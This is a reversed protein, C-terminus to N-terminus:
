QEALFLGSEPNETLAEVVAARIQSRVVEQNFYNRVDSFTQVLVKSQQESEELQSASVLILSVSVSLILRM